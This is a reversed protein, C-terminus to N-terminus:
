PEHLPSPLNGNVNWDSYVFSILKPKSTFTVYGSVITFWAIGFPLDLLLHLTAAWTRGRFVPGFIKKM